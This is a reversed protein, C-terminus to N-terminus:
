IYKWIYFSLRLIEKVEISRFYQCREQKLNKNTSRWTRRSYVTKNYHRTPRWTFASLVSNTYKLWFPSIDMKFPPERFYNFLNVYTPLLMEDVSVLILKPRALAHVAISLNDILYFVSWDLSIVRLKKWAATTEIRSLPHVVHFRVLSPPFQVLISCAINFLDQFCCGVSRCSSSWRYGIEWLMWIRRVFYAPCLSFLLSLRM